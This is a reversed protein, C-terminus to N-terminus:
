RKSCCIVFVLFVFIFSQIDRYLEWYRDNSSEGSQYYMQHNALTLTEETDMARDWHFLERRVQMEPASVHTVELSEWAM